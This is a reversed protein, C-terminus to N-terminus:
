ASHFALSQFLKSIVPFPSHNHCLLIPFQSENKRGDHCCARRQGRTSVISVIAATCCGRATATVTRGRFGCSDADHHRMGALQRRVGRHALSPLFHHTLLQAAVNGKFPIKDRPCFILFFFVHRQSGCVEGVDDMYHIHAIRDRILILPKENIKPLIFFHHGIVHSKDVRHLVPSILNKIRVSLAVTELVYLDGTHFFAYSNVIGCGVAIINKFFM